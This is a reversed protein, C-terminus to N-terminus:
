ILFIDLFIFTGSSYTPRLPLVILIGWGRFNVFPLTSVAEHTILVNLLIHHLTKLKQLMPVTAHEDDFYTM